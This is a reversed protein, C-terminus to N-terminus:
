AVPAAVFRPVALGRDILADLVADGMPGRVEEPLSIATRLIGRADRYKPLEIRTGAPNVRLARIGHVEIRVGDIEIAVSALAFLRGTRVPTVSLVMISVTSSGGEDSQMGDMRPYGRRYSKPSRAVVTYYTEFAPSECLRSPPGM